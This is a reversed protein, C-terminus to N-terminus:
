SEPRGGCAAWDFSDRWSWGRWDGSGDGIAVLWRALGSNEYPKEDESERQRTPLNGAVLRRVRFISIVFLYHVTSLPCRDNVIVLNITLGEFVDRWSRRWSKTFQKWSWNTSSNNHGKKLQETYNPYHKPYDKRLFIITTKFCLIM